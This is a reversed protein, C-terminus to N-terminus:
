KALMNALNSKIKDYVVYFNELEEPTIGEKLKEETEKFSKEVGRSVEM